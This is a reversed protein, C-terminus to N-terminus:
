PRRRRQPQHRDHQHQVRHRGGALVRVANKRQSQQDQRQQRDYQLAGHQRAADGTGDTSNNDVLFVNRVATKKLDSLVFPVNGVENYAPIIADIIVRRLAVGENRPLKVNKCPARSM